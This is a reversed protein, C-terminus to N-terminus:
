LNYLYHYYNKGLYYNFSANLAGIKCYVDVYINTEVKMKKSERKWMKFIMFFILHFLKQYDQLIEHYIDSTQHPARVIM